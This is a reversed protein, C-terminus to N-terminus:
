PQRNPPMGTAHLVAPNQRDTLRYGADHWRTGSWPLLHARGDDGITAEPPLVIGGEVAWGPATMAPWAVTIDVRRLGASVGHGVQQVFPLTLSGRGPKAAGPQVSAPLGAAKRIGRGAYHQPGTIWLVDTVEKVRFRLPDTVPALADVAAMLREAPTLHALSPLRGGARPEGLADVDILMGDTDAQLVAGPGLYTIAAHLATRVYSEIMALAAPYANQGDGAQETVTIIGGLAITGGGGGGRPSLAGIAWAEGPIANGLVTTRTGHAGLKGPVSRSWGKVVARITPDDAGHGGDLCELMWRGFAAFPRGMRHLQGGTVGVIDGREAADQLDPGMLTTPFEGVPHWVRRGIRVPYRPVETRVVVDALLTYSACLYKYKAIDAATIVPGRSTPIALRALITAHAHEIDIVAYHGDPLRDHRAALRYGGYLATRDRACAEPEPDMVIKSAPQLRHRAASWGCAPGTRQWNGLHEADWWAMIALVQGAILTADRAARSAPMAAKTGKRPRTGPGTDAPGHAGFRAGAVWGHLAALTVRSSGRTFTLTPERSGLGGPLMAWGLRLLGDPLMTTIITEATSWCFVWLHRRGATADAIARALGARTTGAQEGPPVRHSTAGDRDTLITHWAALTQTMGGADFVNDFALGVALVYPPSSEGENPRLYHAPPRGAM